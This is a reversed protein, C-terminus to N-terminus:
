LDFDWVVITGKSGAAAVRLGDPAFAVTQLKGVGWTFAHREAWTATDWLRVTEDNSVTALFRGDPSFALGTFHRTGRKQQTLEKFAPLEWVRLVPGNLSALLRGDATLALARNMLGTFGVQGLLQGSPGWLRVVPDFRGGDPKQENHATVLRGDAAFALAGTAFSRGGYYAPTGVWAGMMEWTRADWRSMHESMAVLTAGDPSFAVQSYHNRQQHLQRPTGTVDWIRVGYGCWALLRGDPSFALSGRLAGGPLSAEEVGDALRWLRITKDNACSALRKGDPSFAVDYVTKKHGKLLQM